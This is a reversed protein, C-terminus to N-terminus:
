AGHEVQHAGLWGTLVQAGFECVEEGSRTEDLLCEYVLEVLLARLGACVFRQDCGGIGSETISLLADVQAVRQGPQATRHQDDPPIAIRHNRNGVRLLGPPEPSRAQLHKGAASMARM